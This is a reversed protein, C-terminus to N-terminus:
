MTLILKVAFPNWVNKNPDGFFFPNFKYGLYLQTKKNINHKILFEGELKENFRVKCFTSRRVQWSNVFRFGLHNSNLNKKAKMAMEHKDGLDKYFCLQLKSKSTSKESKNRYSLSFVSNKTQYYGLLRSLSFHNQKHSYSHTHGIGYQGKSVSGSKLVHHFQYHEFNEIVQQYQFEFPEEFKELNFNERGAHLVITEFISKEGKITEFYKVTFKHNKIESNADLKVKALEGKDAVIKSHVNLSPYTKWIDAFLDIKFRKDLAIEGMPKENNTKKLEKSSPNSVINYIYPLQTLNSKFEWRQNWSYQWRNNDKAPKLTFNVKDDFSLHTKMLEKEHKRLGEKMFKEPNPVNSYKESKM